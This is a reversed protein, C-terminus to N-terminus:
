ILIDTVKFNENRSNCKPPFVHVPITSGVIKGNEAEPIGERERMM